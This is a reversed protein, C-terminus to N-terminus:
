LISRRLLDIMNDIETQSVNLAPMFRLITPRPANILLGNAFARAAIAAADACPIELGILLGLGRVEGLSFESSIKQLQMRLYIGSEEVNRLFEPKSVESFVAYGIATMLPNGSFTGGQDGSDFCCVDRQALLAALPVGGGLGKGLTMIDPMIEAQQFAFLSGTRGIGTQVEDLILLINKELTLRRLAQLYERRAPIVGAEGQVPELMIAVTNANIAAAVADIDNIPVKTFGPVKPEFLPEWQPKGSASMTALTRGHFSNQLTIIEFAGARYKAGWKRALKIAGENAEAGSGTFFVKHLGSHEALSKALQLMPANYYAPSCSILTQAQKTIAEVIVAPAHGLCNVAWGQVFDLYRKGGDDILWSGAGAVMTQPPRTTVDMLNSSLEHM